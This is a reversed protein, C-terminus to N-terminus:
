NRSGRGLRKYVYNYFHQTTICYPEPDPYDTFDRLVADPGEKERLRSVAQERDARIRDCLGRVFDRLLKHYELTSYEGPQYLSWSGTDSQRVEVRAQREGELFLRRAGGDDAIKAYTHLGILGQFFQNYIRQGPAYSYALYHSGRSTRVRIGTPPATRFIGLARDAVRLFERDGLEHGARSLAQLATGQSIASVWPPRGGGFQFMYEWAVGGAREVAMGAMERAMERIKSDRSKSLYLGNLRGFSGLWQVQLGQGPYFQWVLWSDKFTVRGGWGGAGHSGFWQANRRVTEIAPRLRSPSLSMRSFNAIVANIASRRSGGLRRATARARAVVSLYESRTAAGIAGSAAAANVAAELRSAGAAAALPAAPLDGPPVPRPREVPSEAPIAPDVRVTARGDPGVELVRAADAQSAGALIAVAVLSAGAATALRRM